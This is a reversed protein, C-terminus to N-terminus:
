VMRPLCGRGEVCVTNPGTQKAQELARTACEILKERDGSKKARLSAVGVCVTVGHRQNAVYIALEEISGRLREAIQTVGDTGVGPLMVVFHHVDFRAVMDDSRRLGEKLIGAVKTQLLDGYRHGFERKLEVFDDISVMILAVSNRRSAAHEWAARLRMDFAARSGVGTVPDLHRNEEAPEGQEVGAFAATRLSLFDRRAEQRRVWARQVLYAATFAPAFLADLKLANLGGPSWALATADTVFMGGTLAAAWLLPLQATWGFALLLLAFGIQASFLVGARELDFGAALAAMAGCGVVCLLPRTYARLRPPLALLALLGVTVPLGRSVFVKPELALLLREIILLIHFALGAALVTATLSAQPAAAQVEAFEAEHEIPFRREAAATEGPGAPRAGPPATTTTEFM